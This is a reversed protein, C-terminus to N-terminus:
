RECLVMSSLDFRRETYTRPVCDEPFRRINRNVAQNLAKTPVSYLIALDRDLMVRKGRIELIRTAVVELSITNLM